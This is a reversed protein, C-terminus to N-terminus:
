YGNILFLYPFPRSSHNGEDISCPVCPAGKVGVIQVNKFVFLSLFSRGGETKAKFVGGRDNGSEKGDKSFGFCGHRTCEPLRLIHFTLSTPLSLIHIESAIRAVVGTLMNSKEPM